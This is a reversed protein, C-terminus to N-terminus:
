IAVRFITATAIMLDSRCRLLYFKGMHPVKEMLKSAAVLVKPIPAGLAEELLVAATPADYVGSLITSAAENEIAVNPGDTCHSLCGSSEVATSTM